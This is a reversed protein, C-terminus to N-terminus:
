QITSLRYVGRRLGFFFSAMMKDVDYEAAHAEDPNYPVGCAFCLEGLNPAKGFPTAWRGEIMTDFPEFDPLDAGIRELERITFSFDFDFGNHAVVWVCENLKHVLTPAVEPWKPCGVLDALHIKHVETAKADISREPNIRQVFSDVKTFEHTDTDYDYQNLCVEVFRHVPENLGTTETDYGGIRIISM